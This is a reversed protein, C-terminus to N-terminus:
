LLGFHPRIVILNAFSVVLSKGRAKRHNGMLKETSERLRIIWDLPSDGKRIGIINEGMINGDFRRREREVRINILYNRYLQNEGGRGEEKGEEVARCVEECGCLRTIREWVGNLDILWSRNPSKAVGWPEKVMWGETRWQATWVSATKLSFTLKGVM